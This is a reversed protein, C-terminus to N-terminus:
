QAFVHGGITVTVPRSRVWKNDTKAPNYFVVAEGTPDEGNIAAQVAKKTEDSPTVNYIYNNLVPEFQYYAIGNVYVIEFITDIVSNPFGDADVRNLIVAAVAVKGEYSEGGAEAETIQNLWYLEEENLKISQSVNTAQPTQTQLMQPSQSTQAVKASYNPLATMLKAAKLKSDYEVKIGLKNATYALPVFSKGDILTTRTKLNHDSMWNSNNPSIYYGNQEGIPLRVQYSENKITLSKAKANWEVTAGLQRFLTAPVLQYGNQNIVNTSVAHENLYVQKNEIKNSSAANIEATHTTWLLTVLLSALITKKKLKRLM